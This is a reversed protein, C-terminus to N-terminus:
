VMSPVQAKFVLAIRSIISVRREVGEAVCSSTLRKFILTDALYRRSATGAFASRILARLNVSAFFSRGIKLRFAVLVILPTETIATM